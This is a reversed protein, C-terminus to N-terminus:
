GVINRRVGRKDLFSRVVAEVVVVLIVVVGEEREREGKEM